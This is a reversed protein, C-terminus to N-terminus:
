KWFCQTPDGKTTFRNKSRDDQSFEIITNVSHEYGKTMQELQSEETIINGTILILMESRTASSNTSGLMRRLFPINNILPLTDLNDSVKERIMGGCVVTQGDRM